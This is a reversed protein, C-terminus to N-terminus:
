SIKPQYKEKIYKDIKLQLDKKNECNHLYVHPESDSVSFDELEMDRRQQQEERLRRM